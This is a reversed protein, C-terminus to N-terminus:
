DLFADAMNTMSAVRIACRRQQRIRDFRPHRKSLRDSGSWETRRLLMRGSLADWLVLTDFIDRFRWNLNIKEHDHVEGAKKGCAAVVLGCPSVAISLNQMASLLEEDSELARVPKGTETDWIAAKSRDIAVHWGGPLLAQANQSGLGLRFRRPLARSGDWVALPSERPSHVSSVVRAGGRSVAVESRSIAWSWEM